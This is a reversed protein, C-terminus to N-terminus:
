SGSAVSWTLGRIGLITQCHRVGGAGQIDNMVLSRLEDDTDYRVTVLVDVSGLVGCVEDVHPVAAIREITAGIRGRDVSLLVFAWREGTPSPEIRVHQDERIRLTETQMVAPEDRELGDLLMFLQSESEVAARIIV